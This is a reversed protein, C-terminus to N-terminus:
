VKKVTLNDEIYCKDCAQTLVAMLVQDKSDFKAMTIEKVVKDEEGVKSNSDDPDLEGGRSASEQAKEKSTIEVEKRSKKAKDKDSLIEEM